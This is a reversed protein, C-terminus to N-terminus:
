QTLYDAGRGAVRGPAPAEYASFEAWIPLHDSVQQVRDPSLSHVRGIDYVGGRGTFEATSPQHLIINDYQANKATNTPVGRIVPRVGQIQGLKGLHRDDVNLDGLLIVDDEGGSVRRVVQFVQELADLETGTEDPDTHVNVLMFTFAQEPPARTRFQAVLPERHLLDDPDNVTYVSSPNLDIVATDYLYAYQETSRTRGLRPGVVRNYARGDRNVYTRLFNDIFYDDQTRIEQIAVVHFNQIISALASMVYPKSAKTDGFVQINFSAIRITPGGTLPTPPAGPSSGGQYSASIAPVAPAAPPGPPYQNQNAGYQVPPAAGYQNGAPFQSQGGSQSQSQAAFEALLKRLIQAGPGDAVFWGSGLLTALLAFTHKRKM